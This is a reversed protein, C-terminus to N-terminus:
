RSEKRPWCHYYHLHRGTASLGLYQFFRISTENDSYIRTAVRRIEPFRSAFFELSHRILNLAVFGRRFEPDVAIEYLQVAGEDLSACHFAVPRAPESPSYALAVTGNRNEVHSKMLSMKHERASAVSIHPDTSFRTPAAFPLLRALQHWDSDSKLARVDYRLSALRAQALAKERDGEMEVLMGRYELLNTQLKAYTQIWVFDLEDAVAADILELLAADGLGDDNELILSGVRAAVKGSDFTNLRAALM